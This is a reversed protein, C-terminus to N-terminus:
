SSKQLARCIDKAASGKRHTAGSTVLDGERNFVTFENEHEGYQTKESAKHEWVVIYNAKAPNTTLTVAPCERALTKTMEPNVTGAQAGDNSVLSAIEVAHDTVFVRPKDAALASELLLALAGIAFLSRM